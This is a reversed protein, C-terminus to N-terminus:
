TRTEPIASSGVEDRPRHTARAPNVDAAHTWRLVPWRRRQALLALRLSPSVASPHGVCGLMWRDLYCDGYASSSTLDLNHETALMTVARAKGPGCIAPGTVRGTFRGERVELDTAVVALVVPSGLRSQLIGQVAEAVAQALPCLTGSVLFVRHGQSIHWALRELAPLFFPLPHRRLFALWANLTAVRVGALHMKNGHTAAVADRWARALFVALWRAWQATALEGRWRLYRLFRRELSPRPLLTGDIDFFAAVNM